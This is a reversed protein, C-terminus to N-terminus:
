FSCLSSWRRSFHEFIILIESDFSSPWFHFKLFAKDWHGTSPKLLKEINSKKATKYWHSFYIKYNRKQKQKQMLTAWLHRWLMLLSSDRVSISCHKIEWTSIYKLFQFLTLIGIKFITLVKSRKLVKFWPEWVWVSGLAAHSEFYKSNSLYSKNMVIQMM